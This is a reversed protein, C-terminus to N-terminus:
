KQYLHKFDIPPKVNQLFAQAEEKTLLQRGYNEGVSEGEHGFIKNMIELNLNAGRMMQRFAHRLSYTTHERDSVGISALYRNSWQSWDKPAHLGRFLEGGDQVRRRAWATFGTKELAPLIPIIRAGAQTKTGTKTLDLCTVGDLDTLHSNPLEEVRAGTMLVCLFFYFRDDRFVSKGVQSLQQRSHCGTFLPSSFIVGLQEPSFALRLPAKEERTKKRPLVNQGVAEKTIGAEGHAWRLFSKVIGLSKQVTAHASQARGARGPKDQLWTKFSAVDETTIDKIAKKGVESEFDRATARIENKTKDSLTRDSFYLDLLESLKKNARKDQKVAPKQVKQGDPVQRLGEILGVQKADKLALLVDETMRLDQTDDDLSRESRAVLFAFRTKLLKRQADTLSEIDALLRVRDCGVLDSNTLSEIDKGLVIANAEHKM